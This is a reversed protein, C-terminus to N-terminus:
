NSCFHKEGLTCKLNEIMLTKEQSWISPTVELYKGFM